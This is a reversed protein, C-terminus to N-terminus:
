MLGIPISVSIQIFGSLKNDPYIRIIFSENLSRGTHSGIRKMYKKIYNKLIKLSSEFIRYVDGERM